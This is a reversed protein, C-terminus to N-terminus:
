PAAVLQSPQDLVVEPKGQYMRVRGTVRVRRGEWQDAAPFRGAVSAFIVANFTHNPYRGGFNLFTTNSKRSHSVQVVVGEVTVTQGVYRAADADAIRTIQATLPKAAVSAIILLAATAAVRIGGHLWGKTEQMSEGEETSTSEAGIHKPGV